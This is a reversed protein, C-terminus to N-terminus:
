SLESLPTGPSVKVEPNCEAEEFYHHDKISCPVSSAPSLNYNKWTAPMTSVLLM